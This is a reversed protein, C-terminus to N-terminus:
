WSQQGIAVIKWDSKPSQRQVYTLLETATQMNGYHIDRNNVRYVCLRETGPWMTAICFNFEKTINM